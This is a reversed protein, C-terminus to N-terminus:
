WSEQSSGPSVGAVESMTAIVENPLSSIRM